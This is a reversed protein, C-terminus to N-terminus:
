CFSIQQKLGLVKNGKCKTTFQGTKVMKYYYFCTRGYEYYEAPFTRQGRQTSDGPSDRQTYASPVSPRWVTVNHKGSSAALTILHFNAYCLFDESVSCM